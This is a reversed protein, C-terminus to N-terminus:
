RGLWGVFGERRGSWARGFHIMAVLGWSVRFDPLVLGNGM